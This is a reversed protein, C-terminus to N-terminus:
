IQIVFYYLIELYTEYMTCIILRGFVVNACYVIIIHTKKKNLPVWVRNSIFCRSREETYREYCEFKPLDNLTCLNVMKYM